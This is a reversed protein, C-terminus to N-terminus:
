VDGEGAFICEGMKEIELSFIYVWEQPITGGGWACVCAGRDIQESESSEADKRRSLM